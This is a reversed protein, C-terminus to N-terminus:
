LIEFHGFVSKGMARSMKIDVEKHKLSEISQFLVEPGYSKSNVLNSQIDLDANYQLTNYFSQVTVNFSCCTVGKVWQLWISIGVQIM